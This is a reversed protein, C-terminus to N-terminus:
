DANGTYTFNTFTTTPGKYLPNNATDWRAKAREAEFKAFERKDHVTVLLKWILLAVLGCLLIAAMLCLIILLVNVPPPCEPEEIVSLISKGNSEEHYRFRVVCGNEDKYTCIVGDTTESDLTRVRRIEDRCVRDCTGNEMLKGTEFVKCEVCGRKFSCADPCTPCKECQDGFAGGTCVCKGCECHGRGSCILGFTPVCNDTKVTCNCYSDTWDPFCKCEGCECRGNGSCLEGKYRGCSFDDCECFKGSIIGFDSNHCVCQGCICEGRNNCLPGGGEPTCSAEETVSFDSDTCECSPGLRGPLCKCVGCEYTGNGNSCQTSNEVADKECECDCNFDVTVVLSDRFLIPKVTFTKVKEGVPCERAELKVTFNVTDGIKLGSCVRQGPFFGNDGCYADFSVSLEKPLNLVEMEVISRIREYADIIIDLVNSSDRSITGVTSGPLMKTYSRYIETVQSTVAFILFINNETLKEALMALSPYDLITSANYENDLSMHCHGDNPHTIGALRGDLAFHSGADSVFVLMHTAEQRWGIDDTCVTAQLIADMGGEPTDRNRSVQQKVVKENFKKVEETLKLANIFGFVPRCTSGLQICPNKIEEESTMYIYPSVPKDVFAGFGLQLNSTLKAMEEAVRTGLEQITQLDDNMSFSLDMLYYIDVPYDEVQRVQVTFSRSEGRRLSLSIKQPSFQVIAEPNDSSGKNSLPLNKEIRFYGQPYETANEACGKQILNEKLDCRSSSSGFDEQSCWACNPEIQLCEACSAAGKSVCLNDGRVTTTCLVALLAICGAGLRHTGM